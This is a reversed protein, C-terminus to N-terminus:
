KIVFKGTKEEKRYSIRYIYIGSSLNKPLENWLLVRHGGKGAIVPLRKHFVETLESTLITLEATEGFDAKCPAPILLETHEKLNMPSPYAYDLCDTDTGSFIFMNLLIHDTQSETKIFYEIKPLKEYGSINEDTIVILYDTEGSYGKVAAELYTNCIIMDLMDDTRTPTYSPFIFRFARIEFSNLIGTEIISPPSYYTENYFSIEPLASAHLLYKGEESREGTFYLWNTFRKWEQKLETGGLEKFASDLALYGNIGEGILEWMRLLLNDGYLIYAYEAFIAFPYGNNSDQGEGFNYYSPHRLLHSPFQLFDYTEPVIRYEMWTSTMEHLVSTNYADAYAFQVAHHYEHAAVFKAASIGTELYTPRKKGGFDSSDFPSFDNDMVTYTSYREVGNESEVLEELYAYGYFGEKGVDILYIDYIDMGGGKEGDLFPERYGISDIYVRKSYEMYYAVSDVYDPIGNKDIDDPPVAHRGETDFHISFGGPTTYVNHLDPRGYIDFGTLRRLMEDKKEQPIFTSNRVPATSGDFSLGINFPFFACLIALILHQNKM